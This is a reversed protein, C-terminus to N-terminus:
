SYKRASFTNGGLFTANREGGFVLSWRGISLFIRRWVVRVSGRLPRPRFITLRTSLGAQVFNSFSPFEVLPVRRDPSILWNFFFIYRYSLEFKLPLRKPSNQFVAQPENFWYHRGRLSAGCKVDNDYSSVFLLFQIKNFCKWLYFTMMIVQWFYELVSKM